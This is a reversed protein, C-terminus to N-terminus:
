TYRCIPTDFSQLGLSFMSKLIKAHSLLMEYLKLKYNVEVWIIEVSIIKFNEHLLKLSKKIMNKKNRLQIYIMYVKIHNINSLRTPHPTPIILFSTYKVNHTCIQTNYIFACFLSIKLALYLKDCFGLKEKTLSM